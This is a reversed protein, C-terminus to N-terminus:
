SQALCYSHQRARRFTRGVCGVLRGRCVRVRVSVSVSVERRGVLVREAKYKVAHTSGQKEFHEYETAVIQGQGDHCRTQGGDGSIIIHEDRCTYAGRTDTKGERSVHFTLWCAMVCGKNCM